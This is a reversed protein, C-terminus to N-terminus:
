DAKLWTGFDEKAAYVDKRLHLELGNGGIQLFIQLLPKDPWGGRWYPGQDEQNFLLITGQHGVNVVLGERLHHNPVM